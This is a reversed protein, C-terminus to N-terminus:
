NAHFKTITINNIELSQKPVTQGRYRLLDSRILGIKVRNNGNKPLPIKCFQKNMIFNLYTGHNQITFKQAQQELFLPLKHYAYPTEYWYIQNHLSINFLSETTDSNIIDILKVPTKLTNLQSDGLLEFSFTKFDTPITIIATETDNRSYGLNENLLVKFHNDKRNIPNIYPKIYSGDPANELFITVDKPSIFNNTNPHMCGFLM